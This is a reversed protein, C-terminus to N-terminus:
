WTCGTPPIGVKFLGSMGKYINDPTYIKIRLQKCLVSPDAFSPDPKWDYYYGKNTVPYAGATPTGDPWVIELWVTPYKQINTIEWTIDCPSGIVCSTGTFPRIVDIKTQLPIKQVGKPISEVQPTEQMKPMQQAANVPFALFLIVVFVLCYLIPQKFHKM